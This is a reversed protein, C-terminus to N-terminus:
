RSSNVATKSCEPIAKGPTKPLGANAAANVTLQGSISAVTPGPQQQLSQCHQLYCLDNATAPLLPMKKMLRVTNERLLSMTQSRNGVVLPPIQSVSRIAQNQKSAAPPNIAVNVLRNQGVSSMSSGLSACTHEESDKESRAVKNQNKRCRLTNSVKQLAVEIDVLVFYKENPVKTLFRAGGRVIEKYVSEVLDRKESREMSQYKHKYKNIISRMRRNGPYDQLNKGRGLIIDHGRLAAVREANPDLADQFRIRHNRLATYRDLVTLTASPMSDRHHNLHSLDGIKAKNTKEEQLSSMSKISLLLQTGKDGVLAVQRLALV